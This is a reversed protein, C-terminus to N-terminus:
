NLRARLAQLAAAIRQRTADDDALALARAFADRAAILNGLEHHLAGFESWLADSEPALWLMREVAATAEAYRGAKLNRLKINNQLRLLVARDSVAALDGPALRVDEGVVERMRRSLTAADLIAGENFPDVICSDGEAGVRILFHGPANLGIAPWGLARAVHLWIISLAVPLGRRRAIVRLLDANQLDDYTQRDGCYGHRHVLIDSLAAIRASMVSASACQAAERVLGSLHARAGALDNSTGAAIALALGAEAIDIRTEGARGIAMLAMEAGARDSWAVTM